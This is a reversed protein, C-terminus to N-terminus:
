VTLSFAYNGASAAIGVLGTQAPSSGPIQRIGLGTPLTGSALRWTYTGSGGTANLFIQNQGITYTGLASPTTIALSAALGSAPLLAVFSVFIFGKVSLKRM